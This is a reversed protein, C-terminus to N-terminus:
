GLEVDNIEPSCETIKPQKNEAVGAPKGLEGVWQRTAGADIGIDEQSTLGDGHLGAKQLRYNPQVHVTIHADMGNTFTTALWVKNDSWFCYTDAFTLNQRAEKDRTIFTSDQLKGTKRTKKIVATDFEHGDIDTM